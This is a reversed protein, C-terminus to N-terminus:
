RRRHGPGRHEHRHRDADRHGLRLQRRLRHRRGPHDRHCRARVVAIAPGATNTATDIPTVTGSGSNAVYATASDPTIAIAEPMHGVTIAPGATNSTTAIPVVTAPGTTVYPNVTRPSRSWRPRAASRSPSAPRARPRTLRTVTGSGNNAVYGVPVQAAAGASVAGARPAVRAVAGATGALAALAVAALATIASLARPIQIRM